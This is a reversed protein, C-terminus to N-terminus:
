PGFIFIFTTAAIALAVATIGVIALPARRACSKGFSSSSASVQSRSDLPELSVYGMQCEDFVVRPPYFVMEAATLVTLDDGFCFDASSFASYACEDAALACARATANGTLNSLRRESSIVNFPVRAATANFLFMACTNRPDSLDVSPVLDLAAFANEFNSNFGVLGATSAFASFLEDRSIAAAELMLRLNTNSSTDFLFYDGTALWHDGRKNVVYLGNFSDEDHMRLATVAASVASGQCKDVLGSRPTRIHGASFLDTVFHDAYANMAYAQQLLKLATIPAAGAGSAWLAGAARATDQAAGHGAVYTRTACSREDFHDLNALGIELGQILKLYRTLSLSWLLSSPKVSLTHASAVTSRELDIESKIHQILSSDSSEWMQMFASMFAQNAAIPNSANTECVNSALDLAGFYDAYAVISGYSGLVLGAGNEISFASASVNQYSGDSTPIRVFGSGAADALTHELTGFAAREGGWPYHVPLGLVASASALFLVGILIGRPRM